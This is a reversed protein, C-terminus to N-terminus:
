VLRELQPAQPLAQALVSTHVAPSQWPGTPPSPQLPEPRPILM